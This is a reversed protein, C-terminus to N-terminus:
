DGKGGGQTFGAQYGVAAGIFSAVAVCILVRSLDWPPSMVMSLVITVATGIAAAILGSTIMRTM